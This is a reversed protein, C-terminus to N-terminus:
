NPDLSIVRVQATNGVTLFLLNGKKWKGFESFVKPPCSTVMGAGKMKRFGWLSEVWGGYDSGVQSGV